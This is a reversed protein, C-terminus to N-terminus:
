SIEALELLLIHGQLSIALMEGSKCMFPNIATRAETFCHLILLILPM